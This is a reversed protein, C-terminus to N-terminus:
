GMQIEIGFFEKISKKYASNFSILRYELDIASIFDTTGEIIGSLNSSSLGLESHIENLKTQTNKHTKIEKLLTENTNQIAKSNRRSKQLLYLTWCLLITVVLGFLVTIEYIKYQNTLIRNSFSINEDQFSNIFTTPVLDISEKEIGILIGWAM